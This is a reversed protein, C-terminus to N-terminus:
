EQCDCSKGHRCKHCFTGECGYVFGSQMEDKPKLEGCADCSYMATPPEQQMQMEMNM